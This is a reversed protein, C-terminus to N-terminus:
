PNKAKFLGAANKKFGSFTAEWCLGNDSNVVQVKVPLTLPPVPDPLNNGKGKVLIKSKNDPIGKLLIKQVGAESGSPDKYKFGKSGLTSWLANDAPVIMSFSLANNEYVCTAYTATNIPDQFETQTTTTGKIWKFIIKDKTDDGIKDKVIFLSKTATRCTGMIIPADACLSYHVTVTIHDVLGVDAADTISLVVGFTNSNIDAATWTEGWLNSNSGYTKVTDALPWTSVLDGMETAGVTGGKVIRLRSDKITGLAAHREISVEIGKIVAPSPISFNFNNAHLYNTDGGGPAAQAYADDSATANGPTTWAVTGFTVDNFSAGPDNPGESLLQAHAGTQSGALLVAV